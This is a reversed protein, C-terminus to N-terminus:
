RARRKGKGDEEIIVKSPDIRVLSEGLILNDQMVQSWFRKVEPSNPYIKTALRVLGVAIKKRISYSFTM